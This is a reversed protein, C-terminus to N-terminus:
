AVSAALAAAVATTVKERLERCEDPSSFQRRLMRHFQRSVAASITGEAVLSALAEYLAQVVDAEANGATVFARLEDLLASPLGARALGHLTAPLHGFGAGEIAVLFRDLSKSADRDPTARDDGLSDPISDGLDDFNYVARESVVSSTRRRVVARPESADFSVSASADFMCASVHRVRAEHVSGVGHWGAAHMQAVRALEPLDQAKEGAAREHVVLLNTRATLLGYDLALKLQEAETASEIRRAAAVRALTRDMVLATPLLAQASMPAGAGRPALTLTATGAPVSAFGAFAHITEGGFLGGPLPTTWEPTAPWAIAARDVRPARLRAFMRLIAGEADENPAVFECAGGSAEALRKLVGEAPASGIGVVFVRQKAARAEAVLGDANWIEGDTILLVDAASEAGGLAFVSRLAAPMETGGLDADMTALHESAARVHAGDAAMLGKTEHVVTSGFRSFSFRDASTLGALIRHLARKADAISDGAMSGSCDVLLKVALPLEAAHRPLNACFSALAVYYEGDRAVVALSRGALGGVNLVFDRDLCAGWALSVRVGDTTRETAIAHSPSSLTGQAVDGALDVTLAFPYAVALDTTPVQHPALGAAAPDGYRPAIVTPVALRVSGHEFRLLQAYRYRITASEGAMLNGLNLTCLGDGARELMIASDGQDIAKEYRGEAAKKEVVVAALKRGNLAVDLDLLVAEFPLPFTYVAEVNKTGPNRYRQEVTLEFLLGRVNGRATVGELAMTEGSTSQLIAPQDRM